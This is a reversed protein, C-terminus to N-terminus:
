APTVRDVYFLLDFAKMVHVALEVQTDRLVFGRGMVREENLWQAIDTPARRLDLVFSPVGLDRALGDLSDPTAEGILNGITVLRDGFRRKLYTGAAQHTARESAGEGRTAQRAHWHWTVAGNSLHGNHAYILVKGREGEQDVIWELNDAQARDRLESAVDLFRLQAPSAHWPYEICRLWDDVRRAGLSARHAWEYREVGSSASYRRAHAELLEHADSIISTLEDRRAPGLQHYGASEPRYRDFRMYPLFRALRACLLASAAPDVGELYKVVESVATEIGRQARPNGPSGPLDFGYFNIQRDRSVSANYDRLWRILTANQPLQDFTWSLGQSVVTALEGPTGRVYDHVVRSEVLGSELAVATFGKERVLYELLLNRFMLPEGAFHASEGLAVLKAEGILDGIDKLQLPTPDALMSPLTRMESRAWSRFADRM